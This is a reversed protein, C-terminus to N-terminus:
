FFASLQPSNAGKPASVLVSQRRDCAHADGCRAGNDGTGGEM